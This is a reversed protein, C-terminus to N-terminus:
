AFISHSIQLFESMLHLGFFFLLSRELTFPLLTNLLFSFFLVCALFLLIFICMVGSFLLFHCISLCNRKFINPFARLLYIDSLFPTSSILLSGFPRAGCPKYTKVPYLRRDSNWLGMPRSNWHSNDVAPAPLVTNTLTLAFRGHKPWLVHLLKQKNLVITISAFSAIQSPRLFWLMCMPKQSFSHYQKLDKCQKWRPLKRNTTQTGSGAIGPVIFATECFFLHTDM